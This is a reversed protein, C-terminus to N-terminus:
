DAGTGQFNFSIEDGIAIGLVDGTARQEARLVINLHNPAHSEDFGVVYGLEHGGATVLDGSLIVGPRTVTIFAIGCVRDVRLGPGAPREDTLIIEHVDGANVVRSPQVILQLGRYDLTQNLVACVNGTVLAKAVYPPMSLQGDAYPDTAANM